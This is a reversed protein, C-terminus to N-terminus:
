SAKERASTAQVGESLISSWSWLFTGWQYPHCYKELCWESKVITQTCVGCTLIGKASTQADGLPESLREGSPQRWPFSRSGVSAAEWARRERSLLRNYKLPISSQKKLFVAVSEWGGQRTCGYGPRCQVALVCIMSGRRFLESPCRAWSSSLMQM